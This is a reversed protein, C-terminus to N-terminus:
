AVEECLVVTFDGFEQVDRVHFETGDVDLRHEAPSLNVAQLYVERTVTVGLLGARRVARESAPFSACPRPEGPEGWTERDERLRGGQARTVTLVRVRSTLFQGSLKM